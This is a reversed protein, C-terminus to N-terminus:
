AQESLRGRTLALRRTLGMNGLFAADHSVVVLAGEYSRLAEELQGISALDLNNTPEDLLLLQPATEAHLVCALVARLREGGSLDAVPLQMREGRFHLRALLNSREQAPMGPAYDALCEAVSRTPDALELRQSIYAVRGEGRRVVGSDPSREGAMVRLLTTKGSGNDGSLAIREPGRLSFTLGDEGFLPKEGHRIQMHECSFLVRQAPVRTAPLTFDLTAPVELDGAADALRTRVRALRDAHLGDAKGASVQAGRKLNGAAIRPLGADALGRVASAARREARERAEQKDRKERRVESRLNQVQEALARQETDVTDRYSDYGGGFWRVNGRSLEAIQDMDRLLERDHSAVVLCGQWEALVQYLRNRSAFDLNNTPEDLLLVEPRQVLKAAIGLSMVQGGSLTGLTRDLAVDLLGLRTLVAHARERVSWDGDVADMQAPTGHGALIAELATLKSAIGMVDAVTAADVLPLHQPLYARTGRVDVTGASPQLEGALLKLITSKGAGNRAVLGTRSPGLAFSLDAVVPTGDPWAFFLNSVRIRAESM